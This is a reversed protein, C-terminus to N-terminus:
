IFLHSFLLYFSSLHLFPLRLSTHVLPISCGLLFLRITTLSSSSLFPFLSLVLEVPSSSFLRIIQHSHHPPAILLMSVSTVEWFAASHQLTKTPESGSARKKEREVGRSGQKDASRSTQVGAGQETLGNWHSHRCCIRGGCRLHLQAASISRNVLLPHSIIPPPHRITIPQRPQGPSAQGSRHGGGHISHIPPLQSPNSPNVSFLIPCASASHLHLQRSVGVSQHSDCCLSARLVARVACRM